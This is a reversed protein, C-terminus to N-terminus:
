LYANLRRKLHEKARTAIQSVASGGIGLVKGIDAMNKDEFYYLTLALKEKKPLRALESRLIELSEEHIVEAETDTSSSLSLKLDVDESGKAFLKDLELVKIDEELGQKIRTRWSRSLPDVEKLADLMAGKIKIEAFTGFCGKGEKFLKKAKLWGIAGEQELDDLDICVHAKQPLKRFKQRALIKISKPADYM